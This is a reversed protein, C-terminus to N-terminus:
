IWEVIIANHKEFEFGNMIKGQKFTCIIDWYESTLTLFRQCILLKM